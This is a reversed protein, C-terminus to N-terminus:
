HVHSSPSVFTSWLQATGPAGGTPAVSFIHHSHLFSGPNEHFDGLFRETAPANCHFPLLEPDTSPQGVQADRWDSWSLGGNASVASRARICRNAYGACTDAQEYWTAFLKDDQSSTGDSLVTLAPSFQNIGDNSTPNATAIASWIFNLSAPDWVGRMTSIDKAVGGTELTHVALYIVGPKSRSAVLSWGQVMRMYSATGPITVSSISQIVPASVTSECATLALNLRCIRITNTLIWSAYVRGDGGVTATPPGGNGPVALTQTPGLCPATTCGASCCATSSSPCVAGDDTCRYKLGGGSNWVFHVRSSGRQIAVWEHDVGSTQDIITPPTYTSGNQTTTFYIAQNSTTAPCNGSRNLALVGVYAKGNGTFAAVPDSLYNFTQAGITNPLTVAANWTAGDNGSWFAQTFPYDDAPNGDNNNPRVIGVAIVNGKWEDMMSESHPLSSGLDIRHAFTGDGHAQSLSLDNAAGSSDRSYLEYGAGVGPPLGFGGMFGIWSVSPLGSVALGNATIGPNTNGTEVATGLDVAMWPWSGATMTDRWLRGDQTIVFGDLAIFGGSPHTAATLSFKGNLATTGLNTLTWSFTSTTPSNSQAVRIMSEAGFTTCWLNLVYVGSNIFGQAAALSRCGTSSPPSSITGVAWDTALWRGYGVTGDTRTSFYSWITEDSNATAAIQTDNRFNAGFDQFTFSSATTARFALVLHGSVTTYALTIYRAGAALGTLAAVPGAPELGIPTAHATWVGAGSGSITYEYITGWNGAMFVREVNPATFSTSYNLASVGSTITPAGYSHMGHYQWGSPGKSVLIGDSRISWVRMEGGLRLGRYWNTSTLQAGDVLGNAGLAQTPLILSVVVAVLWGCSNRMLLLKTGFVKM